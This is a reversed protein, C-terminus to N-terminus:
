LAVKKQKQRGHWEEGAKVAASRASSVGQLAALTSSMLGSSTVLIFSVTTGSAPRHFPARKMKLM